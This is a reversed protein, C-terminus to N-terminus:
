ESDIEFIEDIDRSETLYGVFLGKASSYLKRTKRDLLYDVNRIVIKETELVINRKKHYGHPLKNELFLKHHTKCFQENTQGRACRCVGNKNKVYAFCTVGDREQCEQHLSRNYQLQLNVLNNMDEFDIDYRESIIQLVLKTHTALDTIGSM